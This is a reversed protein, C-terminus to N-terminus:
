IDSNECIKTSFEVYGCKDCVYVSHPNHPTQGITSSGNIKHEKGYISFEENLEYHKMKSQCRLCDM